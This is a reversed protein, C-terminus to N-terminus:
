STREPAGAVFRQMSPPVASYLERLFTQQVAIEHETGSASEALSSIRVLLGDPVRGDLGDRLIAGRVAWPGTALRDGIRIWYEVIETRARNRTVLATAEVRRKGLAIARTGLATVAFGQAYYCLEPRHIKLEQTQRRGYALALMVRAGDSRRYTRMLVDDYAASQAADPDAIASPVLLVPTVAAPEAVWDGFREPVLQSLPPTDRRLPERPTLRAAAYSAACLAVLVILSRALASTM